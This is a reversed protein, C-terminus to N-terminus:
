DSIRLFSRRVIAGIMMRPLRTPCGEVLSCRKGNCGDATTTARGTDLGRRSGHMGTRGCVAWSRNTGRGALRAFANPEVHVM